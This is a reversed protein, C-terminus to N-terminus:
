PVEEPPEEEGEEDLSAPGEGEVDLHSLFDRFVRLEGVTESGSPPGEELVLAAQELVSEEIFLPCKVRVALAIADSPRSDVEAYRGTLDFIIRAYFTNDRIDNVLVRNVKAGLTEIVSRLLDHTFPRAMQVGQMELTIADAVDPSIWIPLYRNGHTEKLVVVRHQTILSVHVSRVTAEVM